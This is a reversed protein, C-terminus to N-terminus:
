FLVIPMPPNVVTIKSINKVHLNLHKKDTSILRVIQNNTLDEKKLPCSKGLPKEAEKKSTLGGVIPMM